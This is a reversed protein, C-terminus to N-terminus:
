GSYLTLTSRRMVARLRRRMGQETDCSRASSPRLNQRGTLLGCASKAVEPVEETMALKGRTKGGVGLLSHADRCRVGAMAEDASVGLNDPDGGCEPPSLKPDCACGIVRARYHHAQAYLLIGSADFSQEAGFGWRRVQTEALTGWVVFEGPNVLDAQLLNGVNYNKYLGYDAYLTTKGQPLWQKSIGLQVYLFHAQGNARLLSIDDERLGGAVSAYLGTPDHILSASGKADQYHHERDDMYGIGAAFRFPKWAAQYRAAVDWVDDKGWAASLVVGGM